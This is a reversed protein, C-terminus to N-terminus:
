QAAEPLRARLEAVDRMRNRLHRSLVRIIGRAVEPQEDMVERLAQEDVRLLRTDEVTTVSASRPEPDLVAMEGFVEREGLFNFFRDQDHVRVKGSVIIYLCDGREGKEFIMQGAPAEYEAAAAAIEALVEDPTEAFIGVTKLIIVRELTSLMANVGVAHAIVQRAWDATQRVIPDAAQQAGAILAAAQERETSEEAAISLCWQGLTYLACAQLWPDRLDTPGAIITRLRELRSLHLQALPGSLRQWRQQPTLDDLLPLVQPKLTQPLLTDVVELAYARKQASNQRLNDRARLVVEPDYLFSLLCFLRERSLELRDAFAAQLLTTTADDGCDISSALLWSSYDAEAVIRSQVGAIEDPAARYGCGSLARLVEGRVRVDPQDLQDKLVNVATAGRIRGCVQSLGISVARDLDPRRLATRVELLSSRGGAALAAVAAGRVPPSKLCDIVAPWLSPYKIQGAARLAARRVQVEPDPLLQLLPQYYSQAGVEGLVQAALVRDFARQSHILRFLRDTAVVVGEPNGSVLLGVLAGRRIPPTPDTLYGMMEPLVEPGGLLVITKVAVGRVELSPEAALCARIEPLAAALRLRALRELAERRVEAAPHQLLSPLAASLAEPNADQLLNMAYLAAGPHPNRLEAQLVAVSSADDVSLEVSSLRRRALANILMQPYERGLRYAVSGWAAVVVVLTYALALTGSTFLANLLLLIVGTLGIAFPQVIGDAITQVQPRVQAPLPQYLITRAALDISLGVSMDLLKALVTIWFVLTLAGGLTGLAAILAVSIGLGIPLILLSARLGRRSIVPGAVFFNILLTIIGLGGLYIGLFSALEDPNPFQAAARDYFLNDLLFFALWWAVVLAFLLLIYRQRLLESLRTNEPRSRVAAPTDTTEIPGSFNRTIFLMTILAGLLGGGALLLLNAAGIWRVIVPILFGTIVISIWQGAGVVGFLRKSQRVTFLRAALPWFSLNGLNILIQFLIPLTFILWAGPAASLGLWFAGTLLLLFGLNVTLLARFTLRQGLRLYTASLLSVILANAIYVWALTQANFETLFLTFATTQTFNFAIGLFFYQLLLLGVLRGEGPQINLLIQLKSSRNM